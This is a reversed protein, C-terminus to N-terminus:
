DSDSSDSGLNIVVEAIDEMRNDVDWFRPEEKEIVHKVCNQWQSIAVSQVAEVLLRKVDKINFTKNNRAVYGKVQAWILEIPNLECHYPPLRLLLKGQEKAMEDVVNKDYISKHQNVLSLLEQKLMDHELPIEKSALWDTIQAKNWSTTPLREKKVTHYSANDMVIVCNPELQPLVKRFWEHFADGTMEEHYEKTSHSEFVWLGNDVFGKESGIHVVILRKGKGTPNRLGTSLGNLFAYKASIVTKDQWIKEKTHGANVWTEDMYYIIKGEKRYKKIERLYKRRWLVIDKRDLLRSNRQRKDYKFGIHKMLEYFTSKKYNPLDPDENVCAMIKKVTPIENNFFFTDVKRRIACKVSEETDSITTKSKPKIKVPSKVEGTSKYENLIKFVTSVAVGM